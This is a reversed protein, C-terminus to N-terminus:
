SNKWSMVDRQTHSICQTFRVGAGNLNQYLPSSSFSAHYSTCRIPTKVNWSSSPLEPGKRVTKTKLEIAVVHSVLWGAPHARLGRGGGNRRGGEPILSRRLSTHHSVTGLAQTLSFTKRLSRLDKKVQGGFDSIPRDMQFGFDFLNGTM